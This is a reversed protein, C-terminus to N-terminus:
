PSALDNVSLIANMVTLILGGVTGGIILTLLPTLLTLLQSVQRQLATEFITAVRMLMVDTQGTQEGVSILRLAVEPFIGSRILPQALRDGSKVAESANVVATRFARNRLVNGTLRLADLIPLGNRSLTSFTRSFRATERATILAGIIPVRLVSRDIMDRAAENQLVAIIAVVLAVVAGLVVVWSESVFDRINVLLQLAPPLQAGADKFLPVV